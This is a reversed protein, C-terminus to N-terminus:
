SLKLYVLTTRTLILLIPFAGLSIILTRRKGANVQVSPQTAIVKHGGM